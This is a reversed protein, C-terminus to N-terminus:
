KNNCLHLFIKKERREKERKKKKGVHKLTIEAYWIIYALLQNDTLYWSPFYDSYNRDSKGM